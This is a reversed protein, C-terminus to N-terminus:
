ILLSKDVVIGLPNFMVYGSICTNVRVLDVM